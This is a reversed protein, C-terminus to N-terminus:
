WDGGSISDTETSQWTEGGDISDLTNNSNELWSKGGSIIDYYLSASAPDSFVITNTEIDYEFTKKDGVDTIDVEIGQISTADTSFDNLEETSLIQEGLENYMTIYNLSLAEEVSSSDRIEEMSYELTLELDNVPHILERGGLDSFIVTAVVGTTTVYIDM